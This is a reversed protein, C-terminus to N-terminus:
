QGQYTNLLYKDFSNLFILWHFESKKFYIREWLCKTCNRALFHNCFKRTRTWQRPGPPNDPDKTYGMNNNRHRDNEQLPHDEAYLAQRLLPCPYHVVSGPCPGLEELGWDQARKGLERTIVAISSTPPPTVEPQSTPPPTLFGLLSRLSSLSSSLM